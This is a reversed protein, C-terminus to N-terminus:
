PVDCYLKGVRLMENLLYLPDMVEQLTLSLIVIDFSQTRFESLGENLNGQYVSLGKRICAQINSFSNDIGYGTIQKNQIAHHLLDGDGCGLDLVRSNALIESIIIDQITNMPDGFAHIVRFLDPNDILFADHGYHSDVDVYTVDKNLRMLQRVVKKSQEPTYLRDSSISIVLYKASSQTFAAELSGYSRELDFYSVAKTLYLYANADFRNVFKDGQYRLYSEIQFDQEMSYSLDSQDQLNRGFKQDM